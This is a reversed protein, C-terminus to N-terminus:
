VSMAKLNWLLQGTNGLDFCTRDLCIRKFLNTRTEHAQKNTNAYFYGTSNHQWYCFFVMGKRETKNKVQKGIFYDLKRM